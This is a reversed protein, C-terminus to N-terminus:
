TFNPFSIWIQLTVRFLSSERTLFSVWLPLCRTGHTAGMSETSEDTIVTEGTTMKAKTYSLFLQPLQNTENKGFTHITMKFAVKIILLM